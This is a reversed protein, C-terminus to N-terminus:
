ANEIVEKLRKRAIKLEKKPTEQTKKIFHHLVVIENKLQVCYFVRAIGEKAKVRLEFLDDGMARTHPMGLHPGREIMTDTLAM